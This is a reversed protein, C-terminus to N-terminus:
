IYFHKQPFERTTWHNPSSMIMTPVPEIEPWPVLTGCVVCCPGWFQKRTRYHIYSNYKDPGFPELLVDCIRQSDTKWVIQSTFEEKGFIFLQRLVFLSFFYNEGWSEILIYVYIDIYLSNYKSVQNLALHLAYLIEKFKLFRWRKLHLLYRMLLTLCWRTMKCIDKDPNGPLWLWM